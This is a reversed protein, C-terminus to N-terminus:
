GNESEGEWHYIKTAGIGTGEKEDGDSADKARRDREM